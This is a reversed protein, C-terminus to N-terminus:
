IGPSSCPPPLSAADLWGTRPSRGEDDGADAAHQAQPPTRHAPQILLRMNAAVAAAPAPLCFALAHALQALQPAARRAGACSCTVWWRLSDAMTIYRHNGEKQPLTESMEQKFRAAGARDERCPYKRVVSCLFIRPRNHVTFNKSSQARLQFLSGQTVILLWGPCLTLTGSRIHITSLLIANRQTHIHCAVSPGSGGARTMPPLVHQMKDITSLRMIEVHAPLIM